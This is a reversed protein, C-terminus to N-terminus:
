AGIFMKNPKIIPATCINSASSSLCLCLEGGAGGAPPFCCWSFYYPLPHSPVVCSSLPLPVHRHFWLLSHFPVLKYLTLCAWFAFHYQHGSITITIYCAWFSFLYAFFLQAFFCILFVLFRLGVFFNNLHFHSSFCM